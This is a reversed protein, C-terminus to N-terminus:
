CSRADLAPGTAKRHPAQVLNLTLIQLDSLLSKGYTIKFIMVTIFPLLNGLLRTSPGSAM